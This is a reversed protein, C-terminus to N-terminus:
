SFNRWTLFLKTSGELEVVRLAKTQLPKPPYKKPHLVNSTGAAVLGANQEGVLHKYEAEAVLCPTGRALSRNM